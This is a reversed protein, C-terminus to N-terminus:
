LLGLSANTAAFEGFRAIAGADYARAAEEPTDFTGLYQHAVVALYTGNPRYRVGKFKNGKQSRRRNRNNQEFTCRRLNLRINNLGNGDRHDIQIEPDSVAMIQRHMLIPRTKGGPHEYRIAYVGGSKPTFAHWRHASIAEYDSEDVLAVYGRSIPIERTVSSDSPELLAM